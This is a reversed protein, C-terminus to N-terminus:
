NMNVGIMQSESYSPIPEEQGQQSLLLGGFIALGFLAGGAWQKANEIISRQVRDPLIELSTIHPNERVVPDIVLCTGHRQMQMGRPPGSRANNSSDLTRVRVRNVCSVDVPGGAWVVAPPVALGSSSQSSNVKSGTNISMAM